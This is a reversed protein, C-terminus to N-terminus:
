RTSYYPVTYSYCGYNGSRCQSAPLVGAPDPRGYIYNSYNVGARVSFPEGYYQSGASALTPALAAAGLMLGAALCNALLKM